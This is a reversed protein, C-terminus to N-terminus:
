GVYAHPRTPNSPVNISSSNSPVKEVSVGTTEGEPEKEFAVTVVDVSVAEGDLEVCVIGTVNEGVFAGSCVGVCDVVEDGASALGVGVLAGAFKGM